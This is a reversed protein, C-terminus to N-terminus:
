SGRASPHAAPLARARRHRVLPTTVALLVDRRRSARADRADRGLLNVLARHPVQVGKPQGTSGSTYIVYALDHRRRSRAGDLARSAPWGPDRRPRPSSADERAAALALRDVARERHGAPRAGADTLMFALREPPYAPDLPVYAGGGQPHRAAAVLMELSREVLVGVLRRAASARARLRRALQNARRQARRLHAEAGRLSRSRTPPAPRRRRSCRRCRAPIPADTANWTSCVRREDDALLPLAVVPPRIPWPGGALLHDAAAAGITAEDFLDTNYEFALRVGDTEEFM